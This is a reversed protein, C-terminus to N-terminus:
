RRPSGLVRELMAALRVAAQQMRREAVPRERALWADDIRDGDPYVDDERVIRCSEEAWQAPGGAGAVAGADRALTAVYDPWRLRASKVVLSDWVSHLNWNERGYRLQVTNGGKDRRYSAHLPQHVDAVLHTVFRLADARETRPRSRDALVAANREIAAVVCDGGRCDRAAEYRCASSSFNVYHLKGTTRFRAPDTDRLDDAWTAVDVLTSENDPQLLARIEQRVPASLRAQAIGAITDHALVGWCGASSSFLALVLGITISHLSRM